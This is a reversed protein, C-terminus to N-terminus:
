ILAGNKKSNITNLIEKVGTALNLKIAKAPKFWGYKTHEKSLKVEGNQLKGECIIRVVHRVTGNVKKTGSWVAKVYAEKLRLGTEEEVERRLADIPREGHRLKGEPMQWAGKAWSSADSRKLLLIKKDRYFIGSLVVTTDIKEVKGV